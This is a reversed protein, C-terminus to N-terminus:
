EVVEYTKFFIARDCIYYEGEVGRILYDGIKGRMTGELTPVTVFLANSHFALGSDERVRWDIGVQIEWADIVVPKKKYKMVGTAKSIM